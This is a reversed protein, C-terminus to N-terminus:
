HLLYLNADNTLMPQPDNSLWVADAEFEFIETVDGSPSDLTQKSEFLEEEKSVSLVDKVEIVVSETVDKTVAVDSRVKVAKRALQEVDSSDTVVELFMKDLDDKSSQETSSEDSVDEPAAEDLVDDCVASETKDEAENEDGRIEGVCLLQSSGRFDSSVPKVPLLQKPSVLEM